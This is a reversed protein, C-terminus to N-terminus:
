WTIYREKFLKYHHTEHGATAYALALVSIEYGNAIGTRELMEPTCSTVFDITSARLNEIERTLQVLTRSHANAQPAYMNEDFGELPTKDTRSFRLARYIFVREVDMMHCLVEKISWKDPGYRHEGKEEPISRILEATQRGSQRLAQLIDQDKVYEVYNRFSGPVTEPNLTTM